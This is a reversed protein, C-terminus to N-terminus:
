KIGTSGFGGRDPGELHDVELIEPEKMKEFLRFQCIREDFEVVTDRTAYANLFWIDGDGSYSEDIIGCSNVLLLGHNKFLSSRPLVHAEYGEPLKMSVGLSILRHEGQKMEVREAARLDIWDGQPLKAIRTVPAHYRILIQM